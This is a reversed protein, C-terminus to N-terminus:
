LLWRISFSPPISSKQGAGQPAIQFRLERVCCEGEKLEDLIELRTPDALARSSCSRGGASSERMISGDHGFIYIWRIKIYTLRGGKYIQEAM